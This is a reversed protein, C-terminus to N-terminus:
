VKEVARVGLIGQPRVALVLILVAFGVVDKYASSVYAGALNEALGVVLGGVIVGPISSLGGLIGAAFAKVLIAQGMSFQALMIPAVLLGGLAGLGASLGFSVPLVVGLPVGMLGAVTRNSATARLALGLRTNQLFLYVLGVTVATAVVVFVQQPTVLLGVLTMPEDGLSPVRRADPGWALLILSRLIIGLAISAIIVNVPPAQVLFLRRFALRESAVGVVAGALATGALAVPFPLGTVGLLTAFLMGGFTYYETQAFNFMAVSRYVVVFGIAVLAYISGVIVGNLVIQALM